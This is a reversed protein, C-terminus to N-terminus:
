PKKPTVYKGNTFAIPVYATRGPGGHYKSTYKFHGTVGQYNVKQLASTLASATFKKAKKAAKALVHVGDYTAGALFEPESHYAAEYGKIFAKTAKNPHVYDIQSFGVVTTGAPGAESPIAANGYDVDGVIPGKYGAVRVAKLMLGDSPAGSGWLFLGPPNAAAVKTAQAAFTFKTATFDNVTTIKIGEAKAKEAFYSKALVGFPVNAYILAASKVGNTGVMYKMMDEALYLQSAVVEFVHGDAKSTKWAQTQAIFNINVTKYRGALPADALGPPTIGPGLIVPLSDQLALKKFGTTSLSVTGQTDVLEYQLKHGDVGGSKNIEKVALKIGDLEPQGVPGYTGTTSELVGFKYPAHTGKTSAGTAPSGGLATFATAALTVSGIAAAARKARNATGKSGRPM